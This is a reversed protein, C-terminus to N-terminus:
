AVLAGTVRRMRLTFIDCMRLATLAVHRRYLIVCLQAARREGM